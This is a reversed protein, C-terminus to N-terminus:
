YTTSKNKKKKGIARLAKNRNKYFHDSTTKEKERKKGKASGPLDKKRERSRTWKEKNRQGKTKLNSSELAKEKKKRKDITAIERPDREQHTSSQGQGKETLRAKGRHENSLVQSRRIFCPAKRNPFLSEPVGSGEGLFNRPNLNM